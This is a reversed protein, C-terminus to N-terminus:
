CIRPLQEGAIWDVVRMGGLRTKMRVLAHQDTVIEGIIAADRGMPHARIEALLTKADQAVCIAILKGENAVNLPDLGLLECAAAVEPKVPVAAERIVMGVKSQQAIENLTASLGGRTPDRLVRIGPVSGLMAAVLDHLAQSDSIIETEFDLHERKSLIAVGHDGMTGSVLIADGPRANSGSIDTGDALVGVATASIFVGDGKGKEVVKTDGTVVPVGAERAAFAMSVVIRELEALPFGEELIFSASLWLPRAGMMAVDNITGHVALAGIDGGPFFLPSIVHADTAMVLRGCVTGLLAADNAQALFENALHRQFIDRILEAMARGGAGHTMDVAGRVSSTTVALSPDNASM